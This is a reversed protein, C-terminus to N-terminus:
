LPRERRAEAGGGEPRHIRYKNMKEILTRRSIDLEKATRTQNWDFQDLKREILSAEFEGVAERLSDLSDGAVM